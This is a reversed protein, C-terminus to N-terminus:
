GAPRASPRGGTSYPVASRSDLEASRADTLKSASWGRFESCRMPLRDSRDPCQHFRQGNTTIPRRHFHQLQRPGVRARAIQEHAHAGGADVGEVVLDAVAAHLHQDGVRKRQDETVIEGAVHFRDSGGDGLELDAVRDIRAEVFIADAGDGLIGQYALAGRRFLGRAEVVHLGRRQRQHPEGGPLRQDIERLQLRALLNQDVGARSADAREGDLQGSVEARLDRGGGAGPVM